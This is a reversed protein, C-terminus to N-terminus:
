RKSELHGNIRSRRLQERALRNISRQLARREAEETEIMQSAIPRDRFLRNLMGLLGPRKARLDTLERRLRIMQLPPRRTCGIRIATVLEKEAAGWDGNVRCAKSLFYRGLINYPSKSLYERFLTESRVTAGRYLLTKAERFMCFQDTQELDLMLTALTTDATSLSNGVILEELIDDALTDLVAGSDEPYHGMEFAASLAAASEGMGLELDHARRKGPDSLVNFAEVVVKFKEEMAADGGHRDPHCEMARKRYARKLTGFESDPEVCLVHYYNTM